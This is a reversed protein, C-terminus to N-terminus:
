GGAHGERTNLRPLKIETHPLLVPRAPRGPLGPIEPISLDAGLPADLDLGSVAQAKALPDSLALLDRCQERLSLM